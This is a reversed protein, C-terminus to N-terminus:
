NNIRFQAELAQLESDAIASDKKLQEVVQLLYAVKDELSEPIKEQTEEPESPKPVKPESPKAKFVAPESSIPYKKVLSAIKSEWQAYDEPSTEKRFLGASGTETVEVFGNSQLMAILKQQKENPRGSDYDKIGIEVFNPEKLNHYLQLSVQQTHQYMM